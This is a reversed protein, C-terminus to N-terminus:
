VTAGELVKIQGSLYYRTFGGAFVVKIDTTYDETISLESTQSPTLEINFAQTNIITVNFETVLEKTSRVRIESRITAGTIDKNKLTIKKQFSAGKYVNHIIQKM